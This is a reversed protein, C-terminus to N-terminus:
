SSATGRGRAHVTDCVGSGSCGCAVWAEAELHQDPDGRYAGVEILGKM